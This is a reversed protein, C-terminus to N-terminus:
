YFALIATIRYSAKLFVLWSISMTWSIVQFLLEKFGLQYIVLLGDTCTVLSGMSITLNLLSVVIGSGTSPKKSIDCFVVCVEKGEDLAQRFTNHM